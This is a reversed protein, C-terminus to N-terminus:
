WSNQILVSERDLRLFEEETYGYSLIKEKTEEAKLMRGIANLREKKIGKEIGEEIGREMGEAIGKELASDIINRSLNCMTELRGELEETIVRGYKQTLRQKKEETEMPLLLVELMGILVNKSEKVREEKRINIIIEKILDVPRNNKGYVRNRIKQTEEGNQHFQYLM